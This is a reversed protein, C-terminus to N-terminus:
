NGWAARIVRAGHVAQEVPNGGGVEISVWGTYGDRRVTQVCERVQGEGDGIMCGKLPVGDVSTLSPSGDPDRRCFDKIHVHAIRERTVRYADLPRDGGLMFNGNDFTFKVAEGAMKLVQMCHAASCAFRPYVGFDEITLTVGSGATRAAAKALGEAYLKRGEEEDMGPAPRTGPLLATPCRLTEHCFAIEREVMELAAERDAPKEGIFNVGVDYCSYSMGAARVAADFREWNRPDSRIWNTMPEIATVGEDQLTKVFAAPDLAGDSLLKHFPFLMVSLKM